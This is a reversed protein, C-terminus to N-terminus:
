ILEALLYSIVFTSFGKRVRLSKLSFKKPSASVWVFRLLAMIM